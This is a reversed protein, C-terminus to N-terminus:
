LRKLATVSVEFGNVMGDHGRCRQTWLFDLGKFLGALAQGLDCIGNIGQVLIDHLGVRERWPLSGGRRAERVKSVMRRDM